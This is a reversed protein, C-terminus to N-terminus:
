AAPRYKIQLGKLFHRMVQDKCEKFHKHEPKRFFAGLESKSFKLNALALVDLMDEDKFNLAIRLKRLILNNDLKKEPLPQVGERQGRRLSIFGNLFSALEPDACNKLSPDDDKKLWDCVQERSVTLQGLAFIDMMKNDNLNFIYRIRRLVDNNNM